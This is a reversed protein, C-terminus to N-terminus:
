RKNYYNNDDHDVNGGDVNDDYSSHAPFQQSASIHSPSITRCNKTLKSVIDLNNDYIGVDESM